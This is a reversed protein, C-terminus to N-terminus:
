AASVRVGAKRYAVSGKKELRSGKTGASDLAYIAAKNGTVEDNNRQAKEVEDELPREVLSKFATPNLKAALIQKVSVFNGSGETLEIRKDIHRNWFDPGLIKKQIIRQMDFAPFLLAPNDKAFTNFTDLSIFNSNGGAIKQVKDMLRSAHQSSEFADGYVEKLMDSVESKEIKGSGDADYLDFAFLRLASDTCSCFNWLSLVFERFDITGSSDEDFIAFTRKAFTSNKLDFFDLLEMLDVRGDASDDIRGFIKEMQLLDKKKFQLAEFSEVWDAPYDEEFNNSSGCGM